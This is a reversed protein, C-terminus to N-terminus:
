GTGSCKISKVRGPSILRLGGSQILSRRVVREGTPGIIGRRFTSSGQAWSLYRAALIRKRAAARAVATRIGTQDSPVLIGIDRGGRTPLTVTEIALGELKRRANSLHHPDVRPYRVGAFHDSESLVAEVELWHVARREYVFDRLRRQAIRDWDASELDTPPISISAVGPLDDSVPRDPGREDAV